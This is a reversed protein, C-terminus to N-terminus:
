DGFSVLNEGDFELHKTKSAYGVDVPLSQFQAEYTWSERSTGWRDPDKTEISTPEGWLSRVEDKTMGLHLPGKGFPSELIEGPRPPTIEACGSLALTFIVCLAWAARM